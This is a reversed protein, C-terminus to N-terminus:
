FMITTPEPGDYPLYLNPATGHIAYEAESLSKALKHVTLLCVFAIIDKRFHVGM